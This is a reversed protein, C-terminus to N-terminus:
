YNCQITLIIGFHTHRVQAEDGSEQLYWREGVRWDIKEWSMRRDTNIIEGKRGKRVIDREKVRKNKWRMMARDVASCEYIQLKEICVGNRHNPLCRQQILKVKWSGRLNRYIFYSSKDSSCAICRICNHMCRPSGPSQFRFDLMVQSTCTYLYIWFRACYEQVNGFSGHAHRYSQIHFEKDYNTKTGSSSESSIWIPRTHLCYGAVQNFFPKSLWRSLAHVCVYNTGESNSVFHLLRRM